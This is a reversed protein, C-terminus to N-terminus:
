DATSSRQRIEDVFREPEGPTVVVTREPFHLVVALKPDTAFARYPGLPRNRFRGAFCFLGGNGFVRVSGRMAAPDAEVSRLERLDIPVQWGPRRILLTRNDIVYGRIAFCAGGLLVLLPMAVMGLWWLWSDRPGSFLGILAVGGLISVSLATMLKLSTGWPADFTTTASMIM